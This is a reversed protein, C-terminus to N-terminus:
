NGLIITYLASVDGSNVNGDGNLDYLTDTNGSLIATYLASVDGSNVNGDANLDADLKKVPTTFNRLEGYTTGSATKVYARFAYTTGPKLSEVTASMREGTATIKNVNIAKLEPAHANSDIWYEFGQETINQSGRIAVGQIIANDGSVRANNYTHAVPEFEVTADGTYFAVWDGYYMTGDSTKYFSRYKYYVGEPLNKLSGMMMGDYVPCYVPNGLMEDPADYRKWLFGCSTEEESLNTYSQLMAATNTLMTAPQTNLSLNPTYFGVNMSNIGGQSVEVSYSGSHYSNPHLGTAIISNGYSEYTKNDLTLTAKKFEIKDPIVTADDLIITSPGIVSTYNSQMAPVNLTGGYIDVYEVGNITVYPEIKYSTGPLLSPMNEISFSIENGNNTFSTAKVKAKGDVIFGAEGYNFQTSGSKYGIASASYGNLESVKLSKMPYPLIPAGSYGAATYLSKYQSKYKTVDNEYVAIFTGEPFTQYTKLTPPKSGFIAVRELNDCNYFAKESPISTVTEEIYLNKLSPINLEGTECNTAAFTMSVVDNAYNFANEDISTVALSLRYNITKPIVIHGKALSFIASATEDNLNVNYCIDRNIVDYGETTNMFVDKWPSTSLYLDVSEAPVYLKCSSPVGYFPHYERDIVYNVTQPNIIESLIVKLNSCHKFAYMGISVVSNSFWLSKLGSCNEFASRDITTVSNPITVSTMGSCNYFASQGISTVSNPITVSTLGTCGSFAWEGISTVSYTKGNNSVQEPIIVSTLNKYQSNSTLTVTTGDNNINYCLGDVSFDFALTPM